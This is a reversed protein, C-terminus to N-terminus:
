ESNNIQSIIDLLKTEVNIQIICRTEKKFTTNAPSAATPFVENMLLIVLPTKMDLKLEM